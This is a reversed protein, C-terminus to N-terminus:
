GLHKRAMCYDSRIIENIHWQIMPVCGFLREDKRFITILDVLSHKKIRVLRKSYIYRMGNRMMSIESTPHGPYFYITVSEQKGLLKLGLGHSLIGIEIGLDHCRENESLDLLLDYFVELSMQKLKYHM